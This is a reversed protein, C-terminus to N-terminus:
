EEGWDAVLARKLRAPLAVLENLSLGTERVLGVELPSAPEEVSGEDSEKNRPPM